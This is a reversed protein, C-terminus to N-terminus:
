KVQKKSIAKNTSSIRCGITPRQCIDDCVIMDLPGGSPYFDFASFKSITTM